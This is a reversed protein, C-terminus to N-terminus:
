IEDYDYIEVSDAFVIATDDWLSQTEGAYAFGLSLGLALPLMAAVAGRWAAAGFWGVVRDLPASDPLRAEIRQALHDPAALQQDALSKLRQELEKETM